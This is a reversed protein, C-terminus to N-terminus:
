RITSTLWATAAEWDNHYIRVKHQWEYAGLLDVAAAALDPDGFVWATKRGTRRASILEVNEEAWAAIDEGSLDITAQRLDWLVPKESDFAPDEFWARMTQTIDDLSLTSTGTHVVLKDSIRTTLVLLQLANRGTGSTM